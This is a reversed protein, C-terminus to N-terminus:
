GGPPVGSFPPSPLADAMSADTAPAADVPLGFFTKHSAANTFLPLWGAILQLLSYALCCGFLVFLLPFADLWEPNPRNQYRFIATTYGNVLLLTMVGILSINMRGLSKRAAPSDIISQQTEWKPFIAALVFAFVGLLIYTDIALESGMAHAMVVHTGHILGNWPPVSIVIALTLLFLNWSQSLGLISESLSFSKVRGRRPDRLASIVSKFVGVLIIIELMSVLFATWKIVHSQPLHYTHHAYNTFSNLLGVGLLMFASRSQGIREDGTMRVALYLLSGYVMQNFSAVLTGCSKWQIQLDAIPQNRVGPLLYAHGEAFTWLFYLMGVTWMYVYVPRAFFGHRVRGIFTWAFTAWGVWILMSLLPHLALYERGSTIGFPLTAIAGLGAIGWCIMHFKFRLIEARSPEGFTDFLYKYAGTAAGLFLWASAFTTHLPRLHVLSFGATAFRPSIQPVYYLAGLAGFALSLVVCVLACGMMVLLIKESSRFQGNPIANSM